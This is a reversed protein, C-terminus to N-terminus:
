CERVPRRWSKNALLILEGWYKKSRRTCSFIMWIWILHILPTGLITTQYYALFKLAKVLRHAPANNRHLLWNNEKWLEPRKTEIARWLRKLVEIYYAANVTQDRHVWHKLIIGFIDFFTIVLNKTKLKSMRGPEQFAKRRNRGNWAGGKPKWIMNSFGVRM